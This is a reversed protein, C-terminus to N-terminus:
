TAKRPQFPARASLHLLDLEKSSLQQASKTQRRPLENSGLLWMNVGVSTFARPQLVMVLDM